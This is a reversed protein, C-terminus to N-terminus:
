SLSPVGSFVPALSSPNLALTEMKPLHASPPKTARLYTVKSLRPAGDLSPIVVSSTSPTSSPKSFGQLCLRACLVHKNFPYLAPLVCGRSLHGALEGRLYPLLSLTRARSTMMYVFAGGPILGLLVQPSPLRPYPHCQAAGLRM